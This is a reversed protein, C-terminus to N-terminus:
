KGIQSLPGTKQFQVDLHFIFENGPAAWSLPPEFACVSITECNRLGSTPSWTHASSAGEPVESPSAPGPPGEEAERPGQSVGDGGPVM